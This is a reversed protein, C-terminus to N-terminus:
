RQTGTAHRKAHDPEDSGGSDRSYSLSGPPDVPARGRTNAGLKPADRPPAQDPAARGPQGMAQVKYSWSWGPGQCQADSGTMMFWYFGPEGAKAWDFELEFRGKELPVCADLWDGGEIRKYHLTVNPHAGVYTGTLRVRTQGPELMLRPEQDLTIGQHAFAFRSLRSPAVDRCTAQRTNESTYTTDPVALGMSGRERTMEAFRVPITRRTVDALDYHLHAGTSFGTNGCLGLLQGACVRQGRAVMAGLHQLHYYESFTGDGHDLIVYNAESVCSEDPCGVTSDEKYDWVIGDRSAVVPDGEECEFDISYALDEKHSHYGHYGQTIKTAYGARFPLAHIPARQAACSGDALMTAGGLCAPSAGMIPCGTLGLLSLAAAGLAGTRRARWHNVTHTDM